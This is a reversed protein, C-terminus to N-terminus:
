NTVTHTIWVPKAMILILDAGAAIVTHSGMVRASGPVYQLTGCSLGQQFHPVREYSSPGTMEGGILNGNSTYVYANVPIEFGDPLRLKTVKIVMSANTGTIPENLKEVYGDFESDKPIVNVDFLYLDNTSIFKVKSGEDFYATSIEQVSIVPVFSGKPIEIGDYDRLEDTSKAFAACVSSVILALGIILTIMLYVTKKM